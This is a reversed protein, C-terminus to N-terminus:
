KASSVLDLWRRSDAITTGPPSDRRSRRARRRRTASGRCCAAAVDRWRRYCWQRRRHLVNPRRRSGRAASRQRREVRHARRRDSRRISAQRRASTMPMRQSTAITNNQKIQAGVNSASLADHQQNEGDVFDTMLHRAPQATRRHATVRGFAMARCRKAM